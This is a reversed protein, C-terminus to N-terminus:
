SHRSILRPASCSNVLYTGTRPAEPLMFSMDISVVRKRYSEHLPSSSFFLPLVFSTESLRGDEQM